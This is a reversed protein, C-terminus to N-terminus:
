AAQRAALRKARRKEMRDIVVTASVDGLCNMGTTGMDFFRYFGGVMVVIDLPMGIATGVIMLNMLGGGPVGSGASTVLTTVFVLNVLQQVTLPIGMAQASFLLVVGCLIGVGDKNITAGLPIGLGAVTETVEFNKTAVDMSVPIVANSSCTSVATAFTPFARKLFDWPMIGTMLYLFLCYVVILHILCCLYFTGLIKAISLLLGVGYKGLAAAMLCFVGIPALKLAISIISMMLDAMANFWDRVPEKKGAPLLVIAVGIICSLIVVQMMDAKSFTAFINSSFMNTFFQGVSPMSNVTIEKTSAEYVFGSGPQFLMTMAIGLSTALVTTTVYFIIIKLGIRGLMQPDDMSGIGKVLMCVVIPVLFMRMMNLWIDGIFGIAAASEGVVLGAGSGLLMAIVIKTVDSMKQREKKEMKEM